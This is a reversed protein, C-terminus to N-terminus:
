KFNCGYTIGRKLIIQIKIEYFAFLCIIKQRMNDFLERLQAKYKMYHMCSYLTKLRKNVSINKNSLMQFGKKKLNKKPFNM